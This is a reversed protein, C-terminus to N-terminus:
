LIGHKRLIALARTRTTNSHQSATSPLRPPITYQPPGAEITHYKKMQGLAEGLGSATLAYKSIFPAKDKIPIEIYVFNSDVWATVAWRPKASSAYEASM